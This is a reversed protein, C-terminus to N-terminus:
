LKVGIILIDDIQRFAGKWSLHEEKLITKQEFMPREHIDLLTKKLRAMKYKERNCNFQDAYGDSFLYIVDNEQYDIEKLTFPHEVMDIGVPNFNAELVELKKNHIYFLHSNAGAYYLKKTTKNITCLAMEIGDQSSSFDMSQKLSTKIFKRLNELIKDPMKINKSFVIEELASIGLLSMFAGPVGHGTCDAATVIIIDDIQRYWYFDGSVVDRPKFFIFADNFYKELPIKTYLVAEQIRSAYAISDTIQRNKEHIQDRTKSIEEKQLLIEDNQARLEENKLEIEINKELAINKQIQIEDRQKIIQENQSNLEENKLEIVTNKENLIKNIKKKESNLKGFVFVVIGVILVIISLLIVRLRQKKIIEEQLKIETQTSKFKEYIVIESVSQNILSDQFQMAVSQCFFASDINGTNEYILSLTKYVNRLRLKSNLEIAKQLSIKSYYLASDLIQKKYYVIGLQNNLESVLDINVDFNILNKTKIYNSLAEELKEQKNYVDGIFKYCSAQGEIDNIEERIKLANRFSIEASDYNNEGLYMQGFNFYCYAELRKNGLNEAIQLADDLSKKADHFYELTNYINAFNIHNYGIQEQYNIEEALQQADSFLTLASDLSGINRYAVGLFGQAKVLGEDFDIEQALEKALNGYKLSQEPDSNRLNWCLELYINVKQTDIVENEICILLSDRLKLDQSFM